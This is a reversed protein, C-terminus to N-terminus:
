IDTKSWGWEHYKQRITWMKMFADFYTCM